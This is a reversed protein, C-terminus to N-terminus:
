HPCPRGGSDPTGQGRPHGRDGPHGRGGDRSSGEWCGAPTRTGGAGLVPTRKGRSGPLGLGWPTGSPPGWPPGLSDGLTAGLLGGPQRHSPEPVASHGGRPGTPMVRTVRLGAPPRAPTRLSVRRRPRAPMCPCMRACARTCVRMCMCARGRACARLAVCRWAVRCLSPRAWTRVGCPKGVPREKNRAALFSPFAGAARGPVAETGWQRRWAPAAVATGRM